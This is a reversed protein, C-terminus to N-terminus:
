AAATEETTESGDSNRHRPFAILVLGDKSLVLRNSAQTNRPIGNPSLRDFGTIGHSIGKSLSLAFPTTSFTDLGDWGNSNM